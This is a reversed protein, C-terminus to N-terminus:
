VYETTPLTLHTYSVPEGNNSIFSEMQNTIDFKESDLSDAEVGNAMLFVSTKDGKTLSFDALRFANWVTEAHNSTIVIGLHM